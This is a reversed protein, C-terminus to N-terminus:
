PKPQQEQNRQRQKATLGPLLVSLRAQSKVTLTLFRPGRANCFAAHDRRFTHGDHGGYGDAFSGNTVRSLGWVMGHDRNRATFGEALM